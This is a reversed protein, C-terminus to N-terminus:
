LEKRIAIMISASFFVFFAVNLAIPMLYKGVAPAVLYVAFGAVLLVIPNLIAM